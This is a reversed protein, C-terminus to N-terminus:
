DRRIEIGMVLIQEKLEENVRIESSAVARLGKADRKSADRM